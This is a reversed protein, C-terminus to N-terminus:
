TDKAKLIDKKLSLNKIILSPAYELLKIKKSMLSLVTNEENKNWALNSICFKM